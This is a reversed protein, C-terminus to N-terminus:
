QCIIPEEGIEKALYGQADYINGVKDILGADKAMQGLMSSGDALVKVKEIELKRNESVSKVFNEHIIKIDRMLLEREEATLPKEPDGTDKFKGSSIQNYTIGENKDQQSYDLYSMTVGISGVDSINSAIIYDAGTAAWYAASLALDRILVVTPKSTRKLAEAIEQGAVGSGGSSDVELLIAKISDDDDALQIAQVIEESSFVDDGGGEGGESSADVYLVYTSLYGHLKIKEVNCDSEASDSVEFSTEKYLFKVVGFVLFFVIISWLIKKNLSM